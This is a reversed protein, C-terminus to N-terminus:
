DQVLKAQKYNDPINFPLEMEINPEIKDLEITILTEKNNDIIQINRETSIKGIDTNVYGGFTSKISYVTGLNNSVILMNKLTGDARYSLVCKMGPKTLRIAHGFSSQKIIVETADTFPPCGLLYNQIFNYDIPINLLQNAEAAQMKTYNNKWKNIITLSDKQLLARAMEGVVPMFMSLWIVSDKQMRVSANLQKTDDITKVKIKAKCKLNNWDIQKQQLIYKQSDADTVLVANADADFTIDGVIAIGNPITPEKLKKVPKNEKTDKVVVPKKETDTNTTDSQKKRELKKSWQKLADSVKELSIKNPNITALTDQVTRETVGMTHMLMEMIIEESALIILTDNKKFYRNPGGKSYEFSVAAHKDLVASDVSLEQGRDIKAVENDNPIAAFFSKGNGVANVDVWEIITDGTIKNITVIRVKTDDEVVQYQKNSPAVTNLDETEFLKTYNIYNNQKKPFITKYLQCSQLQICALILFALKVINNNWCNAV